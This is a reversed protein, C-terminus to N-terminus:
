RSTIELADLRRDNKGKKREEKDLREKLEEEDYDYHVNSTICGM